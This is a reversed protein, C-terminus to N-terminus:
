FLNLTIRKKIRFTISKPFPTLANLVKFGVLLHVIKNGWTLATGDVALFTFTLSFNPDYKIDKSFKILTLSMNRYYLSCIVFM